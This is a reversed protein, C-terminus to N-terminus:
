SRICDSGRFLIMVRGKGKMSQRNFCEIISHCTAEEVVLIRHIWIPNCSVLISQRSSQQFFFKVGMQSSTMRQLIEDEIKYCLNFDEDSQTIKLIRMYTHDQPHRKLEYLSKKLKCVHTKRDHTEVGVPQLHRRSYQRTDWSTEMQQM